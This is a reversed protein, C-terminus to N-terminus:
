IIYKRSELRYTPKHIRKMKLLYPDHGAETMSNVTLRSNFEVVGAAYETFQYDPDQRVNRQIKQYQTERATNIDDISLKSVEDASQVLQLESEKKESTQGDLFMVRVKNQPQGKKSTVFSLLIAPLAGFGKEKTLVIDGVGWQYDETTRVARIFDEPVLTTIGGVLFCM